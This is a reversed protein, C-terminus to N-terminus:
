IDGGVFLFRCKEQKEIVLHGLFDLCFRWDCFTAFICVQTYTGGVIKALITVFIGTCDFIKIM